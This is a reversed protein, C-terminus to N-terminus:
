LWFVSNHQGDVLLSYLFLPNLALSFGNWTLSRQFWTRQQCVFVSMSVCYCRLSHNLIRMWIGRRECVHLRLHMYWAAGCLSIGDSFRKWPFQEWTPMGKLHSVSHSFFLSFFPSSFLFLHQLRPSTVLRPPHPQLLALTLSSVLCLQPPSSRLVM